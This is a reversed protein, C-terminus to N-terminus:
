ENEWRARMADVVHDPVGHVSKWTGTCIIISPFKLQLDNCIDFYPQMESRRTLTNSIVVPIKSALCARASDQCWEHAETLLMPDFVYTGTREFYMDAEFHQFAPNREVISRALTSKGSGPLGRVLILESM